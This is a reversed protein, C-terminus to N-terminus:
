NKETLKNYVQIYKSVAMKNDFYDLAIKRYNIHKKQHEMFQACAKQYAEKTFSPILVGGENKGFYLDNDGIGSNTIIPLNMAWCEAMKTPSSAIKSYAPKIFFIAAKALALYNPVDQYSASETFIIKAQEGSYSKLVVELEDKDKTLILLKINPIQSKWELVCDIMEKTYYWTGISGTYILLFDADSIGKISIAKLNNHSFRETDTCCPIVISKDIVNFEKFKTDIDKLSAETLMVIADASNFFQKEKKKFYNYFSRHLFNAKNWIAGDIREDAWYGRMDFLFPIRYKLKFKLGILAALYSRCHILDIKKVAVIGKAISELKKLYGYRSLMGGSTEYNIQIWTIPLNKILNEIRTKELKLVESKECSIITISYGQQAIGILYPLIQSGGLPDSLGDFTIYLTNKGM